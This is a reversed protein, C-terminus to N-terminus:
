KRHCSPATHSWTGDTQCASYRFGVLDYGADCTYNVVTGFNTGSGTVLTNEGNALPGLSSCQSAPLFFLAFFLVNQVQKSIPAIICIFPPICYSECQWLLWIHRYMFLERIFCTVIMQSSFWWTHKLSALSLLFAAADIPGDASYGQGWHLCVHLDWKPSTLCMFVQLLHSICSQPCWQFHHVEM